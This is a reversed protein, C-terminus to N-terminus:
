IDKGHCGVNSILIYESKLSPRTIERRLPEWKWYFKVCPQKQRLVGEASRIIRMRVPRFSNMDLTFVVVLFFISFVMKRM